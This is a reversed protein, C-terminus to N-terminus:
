GEAERPVRFPFERAEVLLALGLAMAQQPTHFVYDMRRLLLTFAGVIAAVALVRFYLTWWPRRRLLAYLGPLALLVGGSSLLALGFDAWCGLGGTKSQWTQFHPSSFLRWALGEVGLQGLVAAVALFALGIRVRPFRSRPALLLACGGLPVALRAPLMIRSGLLLLTSAQDGAGRTRDLLGLVNWHETVRMVNIKLLELLWFFDCHQENSSAFFSAVVFAGLLHGPVSSTRLREWSTDRVGEVTFANRPDPSAGM